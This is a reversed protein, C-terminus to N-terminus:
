VRMPMLVAFVAGDSEIVAPSGPDTQFITVREGMVKLIDGVYRANFGTVHSWENTYVPVTGSLEGNDPDRFTLRLMDAEVELRVACGRGRLLVPTVAAVTEALAETSVRLMRTRDTPIVRQYDPYRGDILKSRITVNGATFDARTESIAVSVPVPPKRKGILAIVDHVTAAPLIVGPMDAAAEPLDGRWLALRHGDTAVVHLRGYYAHLYVGNLYYRTEETSIAFAVSQLADHLVDSQISFRVPEGDFPLAPFDTPAIAKVTAVTGAFDLRVSDPDTADMALMSAKSKKVMDALLHAPLTTDFGPDVAAPVRVTVERDLDTTVVALADGDARLRAHTLIPFTHKREVARKAFALAGNFDARSIVASHM